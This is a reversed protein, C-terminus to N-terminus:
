EGRTVSTIEAIADAQPDAPAQPHGNESSKMLSLNNPSNASNAGAGVRVGADTLKLGKWLDKKDRDPTKAHTFGLRKLGDAFARRSLPSEANTEAWQQYAAWLDSSLVFSEPDRVCCEEIFAGVRDSEQEYQRTAQMVTAPPELRDRQWALCGEIAWNLIGPAEAKLKDPLGDDKQRGEFRQLFPILRIRRWMAPSNDAIAPKHNFALWHKHTPRFSFSNVYLPRVSTTDGGTWAKVRANDLRKGEEIEVSKAFRASPLDVGEGPASGYRKAELASFPLDIGYDGEIHLIIELLTTKGNSGVGYCAFLCQEKTSGSLSYGVAKQVYRVLDQDGGFVEDLFQLFRPCTAAPDYRVPSHKTIKDEPKEDRLKGTRLDVVGNAVGLLLPDADWGQGDDAIPREAKALELAADIRYRNESGLAWGIEKTREESEESNHAVRLRHRAAQKAFQRVQGTTDEDWRNQKLNWILWRQRKHDYRLQEGYMQAFYEANGSDTRLPLYPKKKKSMAFSPDDPNQAHKLPM